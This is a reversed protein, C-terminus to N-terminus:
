ECAAVVDVADPWGAQWAGPGITGKVTLLVGLTDALRVTVQAVTQTGADVGRDSHVYTGDMSGVPAFAAWPATGVVRDAWCQLPGVGPLEVTLAVVKSTGRGTTDRLTLQPSYGWGGDFFNVLQVVRFEDAVIPSPESSRALVNVRVAASLPARSGMTRVTVMTQGPRLAHVRIRDREVVEISAIAPSQVVWSLTDPGQKGGRYVYARLLASDGVLASREQALYIADPSAPPSSPPSQPVAPRTYDPAAADSCVTLSVMSALMLTRFADLRM